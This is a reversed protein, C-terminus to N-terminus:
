RPEILILFMQLAPLNFCYHKSVWEVVAATGRSHLKVQFPPIGNCESGTRHDIYFCKKIPLQLFTALQMLSSNYTICAPKDILDDESSVTEPGPFTPMNSAPLQEPNDPVDPENGPADGRDHIDLVSEGLGIIPLRDIVNQLASAARHTLFVVVTLYVNSKVIVSQFNRCKHNKVFRALLNCCYMGCVYQHSMTLM